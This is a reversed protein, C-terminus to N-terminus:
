TNAKGGHGIFDEGSGRDEAERRRRVPREMEAVGIGREHVLADGGFGASAHHQANFVQVARAALRLELGGDDVVESPEPKAKGRRRAPLALM